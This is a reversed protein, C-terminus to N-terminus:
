VNKCDCCKINKTICGCLCRKYGFPLKDNVLEFYSHRFIPSFIHLNTRDVLEVFRYIYDNKYKYNITLSSEIPVGCLNFWYIFVKDEYHDRKLRVIDGVKFM